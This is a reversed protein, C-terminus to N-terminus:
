YYMDYKGNTIKVIQGQANVCDYSFIGTIFHLEDNHFSVHLYGKQIDNTTFADDFNGDFIFEGLGADSRLPFTIGSLNGDPVDVAQARIVMSTGNVNAIFGVTFTRTSDGSDFRCTADSTPFNIKPRILGGNVVASIGGRGDYLNDDLNGKSCGLLIAIIFFLLIPKKM